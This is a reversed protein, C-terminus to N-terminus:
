SKPRSHSLCLSSALLVYHSGTHPKNQARLGEQVWGLPVRELNGETSAWVLMEQVPAADSM